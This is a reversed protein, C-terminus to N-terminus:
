FLKRSNLFSSPFRSEYNSWSNKCKSALGSAGFVHHLLYVMHHQKHYASTLFFLNRSWWSTSKILHFILGCISQITPVTEQDRDEAVSGQPRTKWHCIHNGFTPQNESSPILVDTSFRLSSCASVDAEHRDAPELVSTKHKAPASRCLSSKLPFTAEPFTEGPSEM